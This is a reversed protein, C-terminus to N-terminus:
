EKDVRDSRVRTIFMGQIFAVDTKIQAIDRKVDQWRQGALFLVSLLSLAFTVLDSIIVVGIQNM